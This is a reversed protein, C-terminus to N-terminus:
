GWVDPRYRNETTELQHMLAEAHEQPLSGHEAIVDVLAARVGDRMPQSGSVYV